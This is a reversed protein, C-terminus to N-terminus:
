NKAGVLDGVVTPVASSTSSPDLAIVHLRDGAVCYAAGDVLGGPPAATLMSGNAAYTGAEAVDHSPIVFTCFCGDGSALCQAGINAPAQLALQTCSSTVDGGTLCSAPVSVEITGWTTASIGYTGDAGFTATGSVEFSSHKVTAAACLKAPLAPQTSCASSLRWTGVLDGGCPEVRGCADPSGGGGCGAVWAGALWAVVLAAGRAGSV